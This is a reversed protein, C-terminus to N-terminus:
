YLKGKHLTNNEKQQMLKEEFTGLNRERNISLKNFEASIEKAKEDAKEKLSLLKEKLDSVSM